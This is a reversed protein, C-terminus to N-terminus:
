GTTGAARNRGSRQEEGEGGVPRAVADLVLQDFVHHVLVDVLESTPIVRIRGLIGVDRDLLHESPHHLRVFKSASRASCGSHYASGSPMWPILPVLGSPLGNEYLSATRLVGLRPEEEGVVHGLGLAALLWNLLASIPTTATNVASDSSTPQHAADRTILGTDSSALRRRLDPRLECGSASAVCKASSSTPAAPRPAPRNRRAGSRFPRLAVALEVGVDAMFQARRQRHDAARDLQQQGRGSMSSLVRARRCRMWRASCCHVSRILARSSSDRLSRPVRRRGVDGADGLLQEIGMARMQAALRQLQPSSPSRPSTTSAGSAATATASPLRIPLAKLYVRAPSTTTRRRGPARAPRDIGTGPMVGPLRRAGTRARSDRRRM